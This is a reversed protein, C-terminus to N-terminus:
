IKLVNSGYIVYKVTGNPHRVPVFFDVNRFRLGNHEREEEKDLGDQQAIDGDRWNDLWSVQSYCEAERERTDVM